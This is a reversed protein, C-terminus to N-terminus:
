RHRPPHTTPYPLNESALYFTGDLGPDAVIGMGTLHWPIVVHITGFPDICTSHATKLEPSLCGGAGEVAAGDLVLRAWVGQGPVHWLGTVRGAPRSRDHEVYVPLNTPALGARYRAVLAELVPREAVFIEDGSRLTATLAEPIALGDFVVTGPTAPLPPNTPLLAREFWNRRAGILAPPTAPAIEPGAVLPTATASYCCEGSVFDFLCAIGNADKTPVLDRVLVGAKWLKCGYCRASLPYQPLNRSLFMHNSGCEDDTMANLDPVTWSLAGAFMRRNPGDLGYISRITTVARSQSKWGTLNDQEYAYGHVGSGNIYLEVHLGPNPRQSFVRQQRASVNVFQWDVEIKDRPTFVYGLDVIQHEDFAVFEVPRVGAPLPRLPGSASTEWPPLAGHKWPTAPHALLPALLALLLLARKM